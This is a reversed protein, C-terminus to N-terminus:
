NRYIALYIKFISEDNFKNNTFNTLYIIFFLTKTNEKM